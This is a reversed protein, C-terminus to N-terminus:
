REAQYGHQQGWAVWIKAIAYVNGYLQEPITPPTPVIEHLAMVIGIYPDKAIQNLLLGVVRDGLSVLCRYVPHDKIRNPDSYVLTDYEWLALMARFAEAVLAGENPLELMM